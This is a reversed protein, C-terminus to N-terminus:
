TSIFENITSSLHLSGVVLLYTLNTKLGFNFSIPDKNDDYYRGDFFGLNTVSIWTRSGGFFNGPVCM